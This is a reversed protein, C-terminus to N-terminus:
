LSATPYRCCPRVPMLTAVRAILKAGNDEKPAPTRVLSVLSSQQYGSDSATNIKLFDLLAKGPQKQVHAEKRDDFDLDEQAMEALTRPPKGSDSRIWDVSKVESKRQKSRDAVQTKAYSPSLHSFQQGMAVQTKPQPQIDELYPNSGGQPNRWNLSPPVIPLRHDIESSADNGLIETGLGAAEEALVSDTWKTQSVQFKTRSVLLSSSKQVPVKAETQHFSHSRVDKVVGDQNPHYSTPNKNTELGMYKEAGSYEPHYSFPDKNTELGASPYPLESPARAGHAPGILGKANADERFSHVHAGHSVSPTDPDLLGMSRKTLLAEVMAYASPDSNKLDNMGAVDPNEKRKLLWAHARQSATGSLVTSGAVSSVSSIFILLRLGVFGM